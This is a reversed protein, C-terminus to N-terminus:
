RRCLNKYDCYVCKKAHPTQTFPIKPDFLNIIMTNLNAQFPEELPKFSTIVQKNKYSGLAIVPDFDSSAAKHLYLLEPRIETDPYRSQLISAYLFIQFIHSARDEEDSFLAELDAPSKPIGGTKYDLIRLVGEKRDLRDITGGIRVPQDGPGNLSGTVELELGMLEFPAQKQDIGLMTKVFGSVITRRVLQEGNFEPLADQEGLRFFDLKFFLDVVSEISHAGKLWPELDVAEIMGRMRGSELDKNVTKKRIAELIATQDSPKSAKRLLISTYIYEATHHFFNGLMAGDIDESVEDPARL